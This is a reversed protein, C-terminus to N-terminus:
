KTDHDHYMKAQMALRQPLTPGQPCSLERVDDRQEGPLVQVAHQVREGRLQLGDYVLQVLHRPPPFTDVRYITVPYSRPAAGM